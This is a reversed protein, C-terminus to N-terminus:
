AYVGQPRKGLIAFLCIGFSDSDTDYYAAANSAESLFEDMVALGAKNLGSLQKEVSPPIYGQAMGSRVGRTYLKLFDPWLAELEKTGMHIKDDRIIAQVDPRAVIENKAEDSFEQRPPVIAELVATRDDDPAVGLWATLVDFVEVPDLENITRPEHMNPADGSHEPHLGAQWAERTILPDQQIPAPAEVSM